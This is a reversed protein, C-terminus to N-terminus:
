AVPMPVDSRLRAAVITRLGAIDFLWVLAAYILMGLPIGFALTQWPGIQRLPLLCVVMVVSAGTAALIERWPLAIRQPGTLARM